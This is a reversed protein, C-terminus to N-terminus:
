GNQPHIVGVGLEGGWSDPGEFRRSGQLTRPLQLLLAALHHPGPLTGLVTPLTETAELGSIGTLEFVTRFDTEPSGAAPEGLLEAALAKLGRLLRAWLAELALEESTATKPPPDVTSFSALEPLRGTALLGVARLVANANSSPEIGNLGATRVVEAAESSYGSILFLLAASAGSPVITENMVLERRTGRIEDEVALVKYASASVYAAADRHSSQPLTHVYAEYTRALRALMKLVEAIRADPSAGPAGRQRVRLAVLHAFADTLAKALTDLDLNDLPPARRILDESVPDFM